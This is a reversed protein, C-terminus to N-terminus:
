VERHWERHEPHSTKLYHRMSSVAKVCNDCSVCGPVEETPLFDIHEMLEGLALGYFWDCFNTTSGSSLAGAQELRELVEPQPVDPFCQMM